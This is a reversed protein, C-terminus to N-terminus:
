DLYLSLHGFREVQLESGLMAAQQGVARAQPQQQQEIALFEAHGFQSGDGLQRLRPHGCVQRPM